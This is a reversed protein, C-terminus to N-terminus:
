LEAVSLQNRRLALREVIKGNLIHSEIIEDIDNTNDVHYWTEEPYIVIVPGLECRDLCGATNVRVKGKGTLRLEKMRSKFYDRLADSGKSACCGREHGDERRNQCCFVHYEFYPKGGQSM